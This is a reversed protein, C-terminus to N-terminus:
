YQITLMCASGDSSDAMRADVIYLTIDEGMREVAKIVHTYGADGAYGTIVPHGAYDDFADQDPDFDFSFSDGCSYALDYNDTLTQLYESISAPDSFYDYDEEEYYEEEGYYEAYDGYDSYVDITKSGFDGSANRWASEYWSKDYNLLVKRLANWLADESGDITRRAWWSVYMSYDPVNDYFFSLADFSADNELGYVYSEYLNDYTKYEMYAKAYERVNERFVVDYIKQYKVGKLAADPAPITNLALWTIANANVQTVEYNTKGKTLPMGAFAEFASELQETTYYDDEDAKMGQANAICSKLMFWAYGAAYEYNDFATYSTTDIKIAPAGEKRDFDYSSSRGFWCAYYSNMDEGAFTKSEAVANYIMSKYRQSSTNELATAFLKSADGATKAAEARKVFVAATRAQEDTLFNSDDKKVWGDKFWSEGRPIGTVRYWEYQEEQVVVLDFTQFADDTATLLDARKYIKVEQAPILLKSTTFVLDNRTWGQTGDSLQVKLYQRKKDSSEDTKVEELSTVTEGLSLSTIYKGDDSATERIALNDWLCVTFVPESVAGSGDDYYEEEETAEETTGTSGGGCAWLGPLLFLLLGFRHLTRRM